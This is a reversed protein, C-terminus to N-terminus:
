KGDITTKNQLSQGISSFPNWLLTRRSRDITVFGFYKSTMLMGQDFILVVDMEYGDEHYQIHFPASLVARETRHVFPIQVGRYRAVERKLQDADNTVYSSGYVYNLVVNTGIEKINMDRENVRLRRFADTRTVSMRQARDKEFSDLVSLVEEPTTFSGSNVKIESTTVRLSGCGALFVTVLLILFREFM